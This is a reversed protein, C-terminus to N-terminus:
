RGDREHLLTRAYVCADLLEEYWDRLTDRGNHPQLPAGYRSRGVRDRAQMDAVVLDWVAPLDNPTPAPQDSTEM